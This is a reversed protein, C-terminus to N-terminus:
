RFIVNGFRGPQPQKMGVNKGEPKGGRFEVNVFIDDLHATGAIASTLYRNQAVAGGSNFRLDLILDTINQEAFQNIIDVVFEQCNLDFNELVLYIM